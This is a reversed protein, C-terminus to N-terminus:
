AHEQELASIKEVRRCHRGGAFAATLWATVIEEAVMPTTLREGLTLLNTDNHERSLRAAIPDQCPVARIGHIKNAAIAVGIGSGCVLIGKAHSGAAVARGVTAAIDPYDMSEPSHVGYDEVQHGQERLWGLLHQKLNLGAHDSGIAISESM